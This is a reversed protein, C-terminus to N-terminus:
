NNCRDSICIWKEVLQKTYNSAIENRDRRAAQQEELAVTRTRRQPSNSPSSMSSYLRKLKDKPPEKSTYEISIDIYYGLKRKWEKSLVM